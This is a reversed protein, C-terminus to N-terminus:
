YILRILYRYRYIYQRITIAAFGNSGLLKYIEYYSYVVYRLQTIHM